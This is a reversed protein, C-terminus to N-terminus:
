DHDELALEGVGGPAPPMGRLIRIEQGLARAALNLRAEPDTLRELERRLEASPWTALDQRAEGDAPPPAQDAQAEAAALRAIADPFV